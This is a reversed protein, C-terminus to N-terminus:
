KMKITLLLLFKKNLTNSFSNWRLSDLYAFLTSDCVSQTIICFYICTYFHCTYFKKEVYVTHANLQFLNKQECKCHVRRHSRWLWCPHHAWLGVTSLDRSAGEEQQSLSSSLPPSVTSHPFLFFTLPYKFTSSEM